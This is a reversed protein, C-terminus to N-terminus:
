FFLRRECYNMSSFNFKGLYNSPTGGSFNNNKVGKIDCLDFCFVKATM